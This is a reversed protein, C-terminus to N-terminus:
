SLWAHASRLLPKQRMQWRYPARSLPTSRAQHRSLDFLPRALEGFLNLFLRPYPTPQRPGPIADIGNLFLVLVNSRYRITDVMEVAKDAIFQGDLCRRGRRYRHVELDGGVADDNPYRLYFLGALLKDPMDVHPGRVSTTVNVPTKVCVLSELLVDVHRLSDRRRMGARLCLKDGFRTCLEPYRRRIADGFLTIFRDLFAQTLQDALLRKWTKSVRDDVLAKHAPYSYHENSAYSRGGTRTDLDPFEAILRDVTEAPLLDSLVLQPYPETRLDSPTANELLNMMTTNTDVTHLLFRVNSCAHSGAMRHGLWGTLLILAASIVATPLPGATFELHQGALALSLLAAAAVGLALGANEWGKSEM